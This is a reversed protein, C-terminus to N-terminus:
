DVDYINMQLNMRKMYDEILFMCIFLGYLEEMNDLYNTSTNDYKFIEPTFSTKPNELKNVLDNLDNNTSDNIKKIKKFQNNLKDINM